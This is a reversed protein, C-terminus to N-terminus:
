KHKSLVVANDGDSTGPPMVRASRYGFWLGFALLVCYGLLCKLWFMTAEEGVERRAHGAFALWGRFAPWDPWCDLTRWSFGGTGM